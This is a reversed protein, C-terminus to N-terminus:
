KQINEIEELSTIQNETLGMNKDLIKINFLEKFDPIPERRERCPEAKFTL